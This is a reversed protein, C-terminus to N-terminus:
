YKLTAAVGFHDTPFTGSVPADFCVRASIPEGRHDEHRRHVFVYDIRRDPERLPEAFPNRKSFTAGGAASRDGAVEFADAFYVCRSRRLTTLGKLYRIEDSHAEANFDGLLIAPLGTRPALALIKDAIFLVQAQRVAGEHFRWALHTVFVPLLGFPAEIEGFLLSRPEASELM